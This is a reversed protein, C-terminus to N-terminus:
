KNLVTEIVSVDFNGSNNGQVVGKINRFVNSGVVANLKETINEADKSVISIFSEAGKNVFILTSFTESLVQSTLNSILKNIDKKSFEESVETRFNFIKNSLLKNVKFILINNKLEEIISKSKDAIKKQNEKINKKNMADIEAKDFISLLCDYTVCEGKLLKAKLYEANKDVEDAKDDSVLMIRRINAMTGMESIIRVKRIDATSEVHTGGCPDSITTEGNSFKVIRVGDTYDGDELHLSSDALAAEHSIIEITRKASSGIFLNMKDELEKLISDSVKKGDFDFRCRESNVHSGRQKTPFFTNLFYYLIHCSSHNAATKARLDADYILKANKSLKGTLSGEHVVYGRINQTDIVKFTGVINEGDYFNIIGQDGVQGGKEAYFCTKDFVLHMKEDNYDKESIFVEENNLVASMLTASLNNESYKFKDVTKEFGFNITITSKTSRSAEQAKTKLEEFGDLCIPINKERAMLETLDKPFGYTDYLLFVDSVDISGKTKAIKDVKIVGKQLTKNFLAEESDIVSVNIPLELIDSCHSVIKSLVGSEIKLIDHAYRVARRLIRRLVYGVGDSSFSVNDSLCVAMTRCHDALVRFAVDTLITTDTYKENCFGEIFNIISKFSDIQYNSPVDMLISLLREFGIGTDVNKIKLPELGSPTRNYEMFVINWIEIVNPDDQDVLSSADRGGIRDYHIETCPGCPGFEGMEWFNDKFSSAIIRSDDFYQRWIRRSDKDLEEYITVYIRDKDLGLDEVLFEYAYRIAEDKFYDDFSWNGLMEFFTHHYNDQGVDDLDNHKGGVRICRQSSCLRSYPAKEGLFYNKFPVMGSNTFLLTPDNVPVVSASPMLKHGRKEFFDSFRKKLLKSSWM